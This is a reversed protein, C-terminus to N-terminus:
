LPHAAQRDGTGRWVPVCRVRVNRNKSWAARAGVGNQEGVGPTSSEEDCASLLWWQVTTNSDQLLVASLCLLFAAPLLQCGAM